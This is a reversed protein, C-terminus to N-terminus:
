VPNTSREGTAVDEESLNAFWPFDPPPLEELLDLLSRLEGLMPDPNQGGTRIYSDATVEVRKLIQELQRAPESITGVIRSSERITRIARKASKATRRARSKRSPAEAGAEVAVSTAAAKAGRTIAEEPPIGLEILGGVFVPNVAETGLIRDNNGDRRRLKNARRLADRSIVLPPAQEFRIEYRGVKKISDISGMLGGIAAIVEGDAVPGIMLGESTTTIKTAIGQGALSQALRHEVLVRDGHLPSVRDVEDLLKPHAAVALTIGCEVGVMGSVGFDYRSSLDERTVAQGRLDLAQRLPDWHFERHDVANRWEPEFAHSFDVRSGTRGRLQDRLFTLTPQKPLKVGLLQLLTVAARGVPGEAAAAYLRASALGLAEEDDNEQADRIVAIEAAIEKSSALQSQGRERQSGLARVARRPQQKFVEVVLDATFAAMRHAILPREALLVSALHVTPSPAWASGPLILHSLLHKSLAEMEHDDMPSLARLTNPELASTTFHDGPPIQFHDYVMSIPFQDSDIPEGIAQDLIETARKADEIRTPLDGQHGAAVQELAELLLNLSLIADDVATGLLNGAPPGFWSLERIAMVIEDRAACLDALVKPAQKGFRKADGHHLKDLREARSCIMNAWYSLASDFVVWPWQRPVLPTAGDERTPLRLGLDVNTAQAVQLISNIGEKGGAM